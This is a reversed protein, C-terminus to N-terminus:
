AALLKQRRVTEIQAVYRRAKRVKSADKDQGARVTMKVAFCTRLAKRREELLAASEMAQLESITKM